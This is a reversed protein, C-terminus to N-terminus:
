EMKQISNINGKQKKSWYDRLLLFPNKQKEKKSQPLQIDVFYNQQTFLLFDTKSKIKRKFKKTYYKEFLYLNSAKAKRKLNPIKNTSSFYQLILKSDQKGFNGFFIPQHNLLLLMYQKGQKPFRKASIPRIDYIMAKPVYVGNIFLWNKSLYLDCLFIDPEFFSLQKFEEKQFSEHLLIFQLNDYSIYQKIAKLCPSFHPIFYSFCKLSLGYFWPFFLLELCFGAKIFGSSFLSFGVFVMYAFFCWFPVFPVIKKWNNEKKKECMM